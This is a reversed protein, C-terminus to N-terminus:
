EVSMGWVMDSNPLISASRVGGHWRRATTASRFPRLPLAQLLRGMPEGRRCDEFDAVRRQHRM